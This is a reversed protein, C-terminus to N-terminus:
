PNVVGRLADILDSPTLGREGDRAARDGALAHALAAAGAATEPDLGQGLLAAAVGTLADGMGGAGM